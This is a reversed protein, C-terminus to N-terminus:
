KRLIQLFGRKIAPKEKQIKEEYDARSIFYCDEYYSVSRFRVGSPNCDVVVPEGKVTGMYLLAHDNVGDGEKGIYYLLIDGPEPTDETVKKLEYNKYFSATTEKKIKWIESVFGSCDSYKSTAIPFAHFKQSYKLRGVYTLASELISSQESSLESEREIEHLILQIAKQSLLGEYFVEGDGEILSESETDISEEIIAPEPSLFTAETVFGNMVFLLGGIFINTIAKKM